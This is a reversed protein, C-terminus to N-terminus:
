SFLICLSLCELCFYLKCMIDFYSKIYSALLWIIANINIKNVMVVFILLFLAFSACVSELCMKFVFVCVTIQLYKLILIAQWQDQNLLM